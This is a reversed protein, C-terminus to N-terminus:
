NKEEFLRRAEERFQDVVNQYNAKLSSMTQSYLAAFEPDQYPDIRVERGLRRSIEEEKQKLKPAYQQKIVEEYQASEDMFQGIIEYLQKVLANFRNNNLIAALGKGAAEIRQTDEKASPLSVQSVFAEFLGQRFSERQDDPNQKIISLFNIQPNELYEHATKKGRQRADYQDISSKDSKVESTREFAIELASKIRMDPKSRWQNYYRM